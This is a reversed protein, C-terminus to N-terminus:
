AGAPQLLRRDRDAEPRERLDLRLLQEVPEARRRVRAAPDDVGGLAVREEDLLESREGVRLPRQRGRDARHQRLPEVPQRALLTRDDLAGGDGPAAEGGLGHDREARRLEAVLHV